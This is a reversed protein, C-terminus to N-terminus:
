GKRAAGAGIRARLGGPDAPRRRDGPRRGHDARLHRADARGEGRTRPRRPLVRRPRPAVRRRGSPRTPGPVPARRHRRAPGPDGEPEDSRHRRRWAAPRSSSPGARPIQRGIGASSSRSVTTTTSDFGFIPPPGLRRVGPYRIPALSARRAAPTSPPSSWPRERVDVCGTSSDARRSSWASTSRDQPRLVLRQNLHAPPPSSSAKRSWSLAVQPAPWCGPGRGGRIIPEGLAQGHDRMTGATM